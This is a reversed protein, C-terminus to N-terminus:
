LGLVDKVVPVLAEGIARANPADLHVGDLASAAAVTGADFFAAGVEGAVGRYAAALASSRAIDADTIAAASRAPPPAVLLLRPAPAAGPYPHSRVIGALRSLAHASQRASREAIVTDNTGLLIVVLDLPAHTHLLTPLIRTGNAEAAHPLDFGTTRGNLGEAIVEAGSLGAELRVPWRDAAQHRADADPRAGWTLSDGFCLVRPPM